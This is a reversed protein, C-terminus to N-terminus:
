FTKVLAALGSCSHFHLRPAHDAFEDLRPAQERVLIPTLGSNHACELDIDTDGVFWVDAGPAVGSGALAMTVPEVAPKDRAADTAGVLRGFLRDWGLHHAERRLYEGSKNSVVGLYSGSTALVKVLDDAGTCVTLLALHIERFRNYFIARADEWRNGFMEPFAERLSKRVRERTEDLTWEPHAMARLTTNMAEHITAWSDVLTNDWDFLVARPPRTLAAHGTM